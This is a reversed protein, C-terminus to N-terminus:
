LTVYVNITDYAYTYNNSSTGVTVDISESYDTSVIHNVHLYNNNDIYVDWHSPNAGSVSVIYYPATGVIQVSYDTYPWVSSTGRDPLSVRGERKDIKWYYYRDSDSFVHESEIHWEYNTKDKLGILATYSGANIATYVGAKYMTEADYGRFYIELENGYNYIYSIGTSTPGDYYMVPPTLRKKTITWELTKDGQTHDAWATLRSKLSVTVQYTGANTAKLTGSVNVKDTDLNTITVTQETGDYTYTGSLTPIAVLEQYYCLQAVGDVGVWGKKVFRATNNVGVRIGTIPKISGNEIYSVGAM